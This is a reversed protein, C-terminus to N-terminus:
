LTFAGRFFLRAEASSRFRTWAYTTSQGSAFHAKLEDLRKSHLLHPNHDHVQVRGSTVPKACEYLRMLNKLLLGNRPKNRGAEKTLSAELELVNNQYGEILTPLPNQAQKNKDLEALSRLQM